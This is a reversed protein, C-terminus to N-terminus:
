VQALASVVLVVAAELMVEMLVVVVVVVALSWTTWALQALLCKSRALLLLRLSM